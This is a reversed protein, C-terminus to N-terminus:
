YRTGDVCAIQTERPRYGALDLMWVTSGDNAQEIPEFGMRAYHEKVMANKATPIYQGFIRQMGRAKAQEALMNMMAEEVQRGLVRCSM